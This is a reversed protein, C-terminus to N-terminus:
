LDIRQNSMIGRSLRLWARWEARINRKLVKIEGRLAEKRESNERKYEQLLSNIRNIKLSLSESIEHVKQHLAEKRDIMGQRIRELLINRDELIMRKKATYPSIKKLNYALGVKSLTWVLWKSPDFHYWRVGNRYDSSFVHHYNHYGEGFTALAILYNDVATQERSFTRSGWTHALSNIFWTVHHLVFLRTWWALFFAGVFDNLLWGVFVFSVFNAIISLIVFYKHQFLLLRNKLLDPIVSKDIVRPEDFLWLIHAYWFGKKISHPDQEKDTYRHHIRHNNSWELVSGQTAMTGFFLLVAEAPKGLAYARHSYCRHYGATIGIGTLFFLAISAVIMNAKPPAYYFYFPLLLVLLVQYVILFVGRGTFKPM